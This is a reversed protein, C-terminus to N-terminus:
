GVGDKGLKQQDGRRRRLLVAALGFAALLGSGPEPEALWHEGVVIGGGAFSANISSDLLHMTKDEDLSLRLWGYWTRGGDVRYGDGETDFDMFGLYFDDPNAILVGGSPSDEYWDAFPVRLAADFTDQSLIQGYYALVFQPDDVPTQTTKHDLQKLYYSGGAEYGQFEGWVGIVGNGVPNNNDDSDYLGGFFSYEYLGKEPYYEGGMIDSDVWVYSAANAVQAVICVLIFTLKRM